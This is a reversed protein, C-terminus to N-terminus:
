GARPPPEQEYCRQQTYHASKFEENRVLQELQTKVDLLKGSDKAKAPISEELHRWYEGFATQNTALLEKEMKKCETQYNMIKDNWHNTFAKIELAFDEELKSREVAHRSKADLM